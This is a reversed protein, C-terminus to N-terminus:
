RESSLWEALIRNVEEYAENQVWHSVGPLREITLDRVYRDTGDLTAIDLAVDEEGWVILTPTLIVPYDRAGQASARGPAAARYWNIMATMAGPQRAARAYVDLDADPFRSKDIASDRFARRVALADNATLMREPVVPLQFFFMYWSKRLQKWTRLERAFCAPHPVNMTVLRELPRAKNMAFFWAVMAGWDHGILTVSRAGSADILAAADAVLNPIAYAEIGSPRSSKGYGRQNPAWVRYGMDALMPMQHRWSFNLEPFGHLCLALRDGAGAEAVEFRQGNAEVWRNRIGSAPDPNWSWESMHM